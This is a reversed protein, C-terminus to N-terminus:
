CFCVANRPPTSFLTDRDAFIAALYMMNRERPGTSGGEGVRIRFGGTLLDSLFSICIGICHKWFIHLRESFLMTTYLVNSHSESSIRILVIVQKRVNGAEFIHSGQRWSGM